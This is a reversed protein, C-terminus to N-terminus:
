TSRFLRGPFTADLGRFTADLPPAIFARHSRRPTTTDDNAAIAIAAPGIRAWCPAVPPSHLVYAPSRPAVFYAGSVCISAVLKLLSATTQRQCDASPNMLRVIGPRPSTQALERRIKSWSFLSSGFRQRSPCGGYMLLKLAVGSM